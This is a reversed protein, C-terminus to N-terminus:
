SVVKHTVVVVDHDLLAIGSAGLGELILTTLDDGPTVEPIGRVPFIEISM